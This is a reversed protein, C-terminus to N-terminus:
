CVERWLYRHSLTAHLGKPAFHGGLSGGHAEELIQQQLVQPVVLCMSVRYLVGEVMSFQSSELICCKAKAQDSLLSGNELYRYMEGLESDDRQLKAFKENDDVISVSSNRQAEGGSNCDCTGDECTCENVKCYCQSM